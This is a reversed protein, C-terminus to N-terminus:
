VPADGLARRVDTETIEVVTKHLTWRRQEGDDLVGIVTEVPPCGEERCALESVVVTTSPSLDLVARVWEKM